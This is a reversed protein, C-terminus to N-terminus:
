NNNVVTIMINNNCSNIYKINNFNQIKFIIDIIRITCLQFIISGEKSGVM